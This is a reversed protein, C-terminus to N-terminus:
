ALHTLPSDLCSTKAANKTLINFDQLVCIDEWQMNRLAIKKRAAAFYLKQMNAYKKAGKYNSYATVQNENAEDKDLTKLSHLFTSSDNLSTVQLVSRSFPVLFPVTYRVGYLTSGLNDIFLLNRHHKRSSKMHEHIRIYSM